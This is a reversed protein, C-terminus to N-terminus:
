NRSPRELSRSDQCVSCMINTIQQDCGHIYRPTTSVVIVTGYYSFRECLEVFAITYLKMPVNGAVRRLTKIEEENPFDDYVAGVAEINKGEIALAAEADAEIIDNGPVKTEISKSLVKSETTSAM